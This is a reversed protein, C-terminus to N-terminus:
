ASEIAASGGSETSSALAPQTTRPRRRLVRRALFFAAVLALASLPLSVIPVLTQGVILSHWCASVLVLTVAVTSTFRSMQFRWLLIFAMAGSVLPVALILYVFLATSVAPPGFLSSSVWFGWDLPVAVLLGLAAGTIVAGM